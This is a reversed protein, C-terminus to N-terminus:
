DGIRKAALLGAVKQLEVLGDPKGAAYAAAARLLRGLEAASNQDFPAWIGGTLSAIEKFAQTVHEEPTWRGAPPSNGALEQFMFVPIGRKGLMAAHERMDPLAEEFADGVFVACKIARRQSERHIHALVRGIQTFGGECRVKHMLRQLDAANSVWGSARCEDHGRYYVLQLDLSGVSAAEAFMQSQLATAKEWTPERSATADLAFILQPRHAAIHAERELHKRIAASRSAISPLPM